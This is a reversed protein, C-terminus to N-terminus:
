RTLSVTAVGPRLLGIQKAAAYSLDIVRGRIFPGRDNVRCSVQRGRYTVTVWSGFRASRHACTLANMNFREGSATKRGHHGKGYYSAKGTQSFSEGMMIILFVLIMTVKM